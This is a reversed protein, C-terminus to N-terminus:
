DNVRYNLNKMIWLSGGVVIVLVTVMSFFIVLNYRPKPEKTIHLFLLLQVLVQLFGLGLILGILISGSFWDRVVIFYATFTLLVSLIFGMVYATFNGQKEEIKRGM